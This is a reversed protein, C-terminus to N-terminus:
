QLSSITYTDPDLYTASPTTITILDGVLSIMEDPGIATWTGDGHDLIQLTMSQEFWHILEDITPMRPDTLDTGYLIEQLPISTLDETEGFDLIIHASPAMGNILLPITSIDWSFELPEVAQKASIYAVDSPTALANYVLHVRYGDGSTRYSFDFMKRRQQAVRTLTSMGDYEEFEIPYTFAKLTAAFSERRRRQQFKVGDMYQVDEEADSPAEMVATLGNWAVGPGDKPYLVGRDIGTQFKHTGPEGWSLKTM